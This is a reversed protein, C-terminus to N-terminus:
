GESWLSSLENMKEKLRQMVRYRAIYVAGTTRSYLSAVDAVPHGEISSEWFMAWTADTFEHRIERAGWRLLEMQTAMAFERAADEEDRDPVNNLIEQVSTSGVSADAKRRTVVNIIANRAVRYLWARFPPRGEGAEWNEVARSVSLFVQQSLDEADAHQLGRSRAIRYIVPRYLALFASWAAPDAPAAQVRLILSENTEPWDHM